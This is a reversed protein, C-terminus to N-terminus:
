WLGVSSVSGAWLVVRIPQVVVFVRGGLENAAVRRKLTSDRRSSLQKLRGHEFSRFVLLSSFLIGGKYDTLILLLEPGGLRLEPLPYPLSHNSFDTILRQGATEAPLVFLQHHYQAIRYQIQGM